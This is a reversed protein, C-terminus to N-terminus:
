SLNELFRIVVNFDRKGIRQADERCVLRDTQRDRKNNFRGPVASNNGGAMAQPHGDKNITVLASTAIVM